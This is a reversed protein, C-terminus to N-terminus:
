FVLGVGGGSPLGGGDASGGEAAPFAGLDTAGGATGAQAVGDEGGVRGRFGRRQRSPWRGWRAFTTGMEGGRKYTM